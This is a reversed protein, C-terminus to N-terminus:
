APVPVSSAPRASSADLAEAIFELAFRDVAKWDTYEHDRSTDTDGGEHASIRKMVFRLLFNYKSYPLAGAILEVRRPRWGTQSIFREVVGLTQAHGDSTRSAVALGVSFFASPIRMLADRGEQAFRVISRLYGGSRIPAGVFVAAFRRLDLPQSTRDTDVLEVRHGEVHLVSAIRRAIKETQGERTAYAVLITAVPLEKRRAGAALVSGAGAEREAALAPAEATM